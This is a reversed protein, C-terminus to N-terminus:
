KKKRSTETSSARSPRTLLHAGPTPLQSSRSPGESASDPSLKCIEVVCDGQSPAGLKSYGGARQGWM